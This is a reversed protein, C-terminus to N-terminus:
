LNGLRKKALATFLLCPELFSPWHVFLFVSGGNCTLCVLAVLQFVQAAIHGPGGDAKLSQRQAVIALHLVLELMWKTVAGGM